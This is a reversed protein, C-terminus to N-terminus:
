RELSKLFREHRKASRAAVAKEITERLGRRDVRQEYLALNAKAKRWQKELKEERTPEPKRNPNAPRGAAETTANYCNKGFFRQIWSREKNRIEEKTVGEEVVEFTFASEGYKNWANQLHRNYHKGTRLASRHTSWRYDANTTTSGIYVKGDVTNTIKYVGIM